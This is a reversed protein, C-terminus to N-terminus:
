KINAIVFGIVIGSGLGLILGVLASIWMYKSLDKRPISKAVNFTITQTNEKPVEIELVTKDNIEVAEELQIPSEKAKLYAKQDDTFGILELVEDKYFVGQGSLFNDGFFSKDSYNKSALWMFKGEQLDDKFEVIDFMHLWAGYNRQYDDTDIYSSRLPIPNFWIKLEVGGGKKAKLAAATIKNTEM